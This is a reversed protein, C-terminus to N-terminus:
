FKFGLSATLLKQLVRDSGGSLKTYNYTNMEYNLSWDIFAIQAGVGLSAFIQGELNKNADLVVGDIAYPFGARMQIYPYMGGFNRRFRATAYITTLKTVSLNDSNDIYSNFKVGLGAELFQQESPYFEFFYGTREATTIRGEPLSIDGDLSFTKGVAFGYPFVMVSILLFLLFLKKM